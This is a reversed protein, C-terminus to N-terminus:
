DVIKLYIAVLLVLMNLYIMKMQVENIHLVKTHDHYLRIERLYLKIIYGIQLIYQSGSSVGM